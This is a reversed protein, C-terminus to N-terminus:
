AVVAHFKVEGSGREQRGLCQGMVAPAPGERRPSLGWAGGGGRQVWRGSAFPSGAGNRGPLLQPRESHRPCARVSSPIRKAASILPASPSASAPREPCSLAGGRRQHALLEKGSLFGKDGCGRLAGKSRRGTPVYRPLNPRYYLDKEATLPAGQWLHSDSTFARVGVGAGPRCSPPPPHWAAHHPPPTRRPWTSPCRWGRRSWSGRATGGAISSPALRCSTVAAQGEGAACPTCISV